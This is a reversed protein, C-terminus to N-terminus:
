CAPHSTPYEDAMEEPTPKAMALVEAAIVGLWKWSRMMGQEVARVDIGTTASLGTTAVKAQIKM